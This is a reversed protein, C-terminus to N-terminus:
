VIWLFTCSRNSLFPPCSVRSSAILLPGVLGGYRFHSLSIAFVFFNMSDFPVVAVAFQLFTGITSVLLWKLRSFLVRCISRYAQIAMFIMLPQRELFWAPARPLCLFLSFGLDRLWELLLSRRLLRLDVLPLRLSPSLLSRLSWTM